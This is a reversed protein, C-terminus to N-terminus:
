VQKFQNSRAKQQIPILHPLCSVKVVLSSGFRYRKSTIYLGVGVRMATVPTVLAAPGKDWGVAHLDGDSM